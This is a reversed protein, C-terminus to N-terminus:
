KKNQVGTRPIPRKPYCYIFYIYFMKKSFTFVKHSSNKIYILTVIQHPQNIFQDILHLTWQKTWYLKSICRDINQGDANRVPPFKVFKNFGPEPFMSKPWNKCGPIQHVFCAWPNPNLCFHNDRPHPNLSWVDFEGPDAQRGGGRDPLIIASALCWVDILGLPLM